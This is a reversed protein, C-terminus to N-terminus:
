LIRDEFSVEEATLVKKIPSASRRSGGASGATGERSKRGMSQAPSMQVHDPIANVDVPTPASTMPKIRKKEKVKNEEGKDGKALEFLEIDDLAKLAAEIQRRAERRAERRENLTAQQEETLYELKKPEWSRIQLSVPIRRASSSSSPFDTPYVGYQELTFLRPILSTWAAPTIIGSLDAPELAKRLHNIFLSESSSTSRTLKLAM